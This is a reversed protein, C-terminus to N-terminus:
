AALAETPDIPLCANMDLHFIGYPNVHGYILPTLARRDETTVDSAREGRVVRSRAESGAMVRDWKDTVTESSVGKEALHPGTRYEHTETFHDGGRRM